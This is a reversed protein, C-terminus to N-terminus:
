TVKMARELEGQELYVGHGKPCRDVLLNYPKRFTSEWMPEDCDPCKFRSARHGASASPVDSPQGTLLGLEGPDFWCGKCRQCFDVDINMVRVLVFPRHCEPCMRHSERLDHSHLQRDIEALMAKEDETLQGKKGYLHRLERQRVERAHEAREFDSQRANQQAHGVFILGSIM